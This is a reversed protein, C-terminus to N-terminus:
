VAMDMPTVNVNVGLQAFIEDWKTINAEVEPHNGVFEGTLRVAKVRRLDFRRMGIDGGSVQFGYLSEKGNKCGYIWPDVVRETTEEEATNESHYRFCVQLRSNIADALQPFSAEMLREETKVIENNL